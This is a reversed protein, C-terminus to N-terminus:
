SCALSSLLAFFHHIRLKSENALSTKDLYDFVDDWSFKENSKRLKEISCGEDFEARINDQRMLTQLNLLRKAEQAQAQAQAQAELEGGETYMKKFCYPNEV